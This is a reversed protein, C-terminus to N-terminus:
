AIGEKQNEEEESEEDMKSKAVEFAHTMNEAYSDDAVYAPGGHYSIDLGVIEELADARFWGIYNLLLFFPTMIGIVWGLIFLLGVLNAGLLTADSSGRSFSYFWGVHDSRGYADQLYEPVAFLGVAVVGWIGNAFHVPIADVSDDIKIRVIFTSFALYIAGAIGGIIVAAWPEILACGATISVLGALCGNLANTIDFLTEGTRREAIVASVFLAVITGSAAGLTTSVAARSALAANTKSSIQLASGANFGYWGFWLIFTGLV